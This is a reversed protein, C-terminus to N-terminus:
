VSARTSQIHAAQARIRAVDVRRVTRPATAEVAHVLAAIMEPLRVPALRRATARTAPWRQLLAYLPLLLYPWRHGPGLVYWPRLITAAIGCARILAEARARAAVYARMVPAPQAVSVYVIHAVGAARAAELMARVSDLDVREFARAKWPSPRSTGVLHVLTAGLGIAGQYSHPAFVDGAIAEAGPALKAASGSRVLARIGHGRAALAAILHGGLYGTAGTIFVERRSM